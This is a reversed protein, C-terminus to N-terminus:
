DVHEAEQGSDAQDGWSGREVGQLEMKPHRRGVASAGIVIIGSIMWVSLQWNNHEKDEVGGQQM